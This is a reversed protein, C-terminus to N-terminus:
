ALGLDFRYGIGHGISPGAMMIRNCMNEGFTKGLKELGNKFSIPM